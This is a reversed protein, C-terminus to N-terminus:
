RHPYRYVMRGLIEKQERHAEEILFSTNPHQFNFETVRPLWGKKFIPDENWYWDLITEELIGQNFVQIPAIPKEFPNTLPRYELLHM